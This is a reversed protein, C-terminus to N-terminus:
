SPAEWKGGYDRGPRGDAGKPGAPGPRGDRGAKVALRWARAPVGDGRGGPVASTPEQAIWLSGGHSVVDGRVYPRDHQYVGRDLLLGDFTIVGGEIPTGDKFCLTFTREGDYLIKIGELTGDRGDKGNLGPAGDKGDLGRAGAPGPV